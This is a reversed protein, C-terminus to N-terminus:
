RAWLDHEPLENEWAVPEDTTEQYRDPRRDFIGTAIDKVQEWDDVDFSPITEEVGDGVCDHLAQMYEYERDCLTDEPFLHQLFVCLELLTLALGERDSRTPHWERTEPHEINKWTCSLLEAWRENVARGKDSKDLEISFNSSSDIKMSNLASEMADFYEEPFALPYQVAVWVDARLNERLYARGTPESLLAKRYRECYALRWIAEDTAPTLTRPAFRFNEGPKGYRAWWGYSTNAVDVLGRALEFRSALEHEFRVCDNYAEILVLPQQAYRYVQRAYRRAEASLLGDGEGSVAPSLAYPLAAVMHEIVKKRLRPYQDSTFSRDKTEVVAIREQVNLGYLEPDAAFVVEAARRQPTDTYADIVERIAQEVRVALGRKRDPDRLEAQSFLADLLQGHHIVNAASLQRERRGFTNLAERLDQDVDEAPM